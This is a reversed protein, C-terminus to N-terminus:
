IWDFKKDLVLTEEARPGVSVIAISVGLFKEMWRVYDRAQRPWQDIKRFQRLDSDFGPLDEYIPEAASQELRSIPFWDTRRGRIRYAVAVRLPSVGSLVDLKTLALRRIGNIQVAKRLLVLDLWGMRRPRGTTAGYEQGKKRLCEALAPPMETPFPGTGVRTTYAKMVGLVERIWGPGVGTGTSAGGATPNSSTVYPYTGHDLDLFTGQAGEFLVRKGDRVAQNLLLSTDCAYRKLLRRLRPYSELSKRGASRPSGFSKFTFRKQVLNKKLIERFGDPELYDAVRVGLRSAKDAYAPGIGKRTTGLKETGEERLQDLLRHYPLVVHAALSLHLRGEVRIGYRRLSRIEEELAWPDVVVGNGIVVRKGPHLVGSPILHLIFRKGDALVTHGANNGGQYRVIYDARRSLLHVIKGKGEDGWQTGVVVLTAMTM